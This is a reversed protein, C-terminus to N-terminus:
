SQEAKTKPPRGRRRPAAPAKPPRGPGRRRGASGPSAQGPSPRPGRRRRGSGPPRGRRKPAGAEAVVRYGMKALVANLGDILEKERAAIAQREAVFSEVSKVLADTKLEVMRLEEGTLPHYQDPARIRRGRAPM